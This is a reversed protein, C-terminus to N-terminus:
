HCVSLSFFISCFLLIFSDLVTQNKPFCSISNNASSRSNKQKTKKILTVGMYKKSKKQEELHKIRGILHQYFFAFFCFGFAGSDSGPPVGSFWGVLERQDFVKKTYNIFFFFTLNLIIKASSHYLFPM